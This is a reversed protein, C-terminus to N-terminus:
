KLNLWKQCFDHKYCRFKLLVFNLATTRSLNFLLVMSESGSDDDLDFEDDTDSDDSESGVEDRENTLSTTDSLLTTQCIGFFELEVELLEIDVLWGFRLGFCASSSLTKAADLDVCLNLQALSATAVPLVIEGPGTDSGSGGQLSVSVQIELLLASQLM